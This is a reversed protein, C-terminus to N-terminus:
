FSCTAKGNLLEKWFNALIEDTHYPDADFLRRKALAAFFNQYRNYLAMLAEPKGSRLDRCVQQAFEYGKDPPQNEMFVNTRHSSCRSNM